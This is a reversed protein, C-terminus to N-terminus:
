KDRNQWDAGVAYDNALKKHNVFRDPNFTDPDPYLTENQHIAYAALWITSDKPFFM